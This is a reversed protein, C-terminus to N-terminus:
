DHTSNYMTEIACREISIKKTAPNEPMTLIVTCLFKKDGTSIFKKTAPTGRM